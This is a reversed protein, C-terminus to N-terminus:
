MRIRIYTRDDHSSGGPRRGKTQPCALDIMLGNDAELMEALTEETEALTARLLPYGDTALVVESGPGVGDVVGVMPEPTYGGDIVAFGYPSEPHNRWPRCETLIPLIMERGPDSAALKEPDAGGDLMATLLVARAHAAVRDVEKCVTYSVGDVMVHVDGVFVIRGARLDLSAGVAELDTGPTRDAERVAKHWGGVVEMPDDAPPAALAADRLAFAAIQGPTPISTLGSKDTSGDFVSVAEGTVVLVDENSGAFGTKSETFSEIVRPAGM